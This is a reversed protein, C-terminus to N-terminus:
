KCENKIEGKAKKYKRYKKSYKTLIMEVMISNVQETNEPITTLYDFHEEDDILTKFILDLAYQASIPPDSIFHRKDDYWEKIKQTYGDFSVDEPWIM